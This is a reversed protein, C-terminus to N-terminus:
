DVLQVSEKFALDAFQPSNAMRSTGDRRPELRAVLEAVAESVIFALDRAPRVFDEVRKM